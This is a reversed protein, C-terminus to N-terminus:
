YNNNVEEPIELRSQSIRVRQLRQQLENFVPSKMNSINNNLTGNIKKSNRRVISRRFDINELFGTLTDDDKKTSQIRLSYRGGQNRNFADKEM